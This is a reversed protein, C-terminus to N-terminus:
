EVGAFRYEAKKRGGTDAERKVLDGSDVLGALIEHRRRSGRVWQTQKILDNHSIWKDAHQRFYRLVKKYEAETENASLNENISKVLAGSCHTAVDIAWRMVSGSISDGEHGCLALKIAHEALRSYIASHGGTPNKAIRRRCALQFEDILERAEDSYSIVLPDIELHASLNGQPNANSPRERWQIVESILAESPATVTPKLSNIAYDHSEFVLWRPIFGDQVDDGTLAEYFRSPVTTGYVGLCPQDIDRRQNEKNGYQTGVFTTDASSFLKMIVSLIARQYVNARPNTINALAKGIEDWLLLGAGDAEFLSLLLGADSAPEGLILDSIDAARFIASLCKRPHDKGSGSPAVGLVLMNTRLGTESQVRHSMITGTAAIAAGLALLPQPYIASQCIFSMIRGILGPPNLLSPEPAPRLNGGELITVLQEPPTDPIPPQYGHEIAHYFLSNITLGQNNFSNWHTRIDQPRYKESTRSWKDWVDLGRDGLEDKLTMGIQIWLDYDDAPIYQLADMIQDGTHTLRPPPTFQAKPPEPRFMAEITPWVTHPIKPLEVPLTTLLSGRLWVYPEKTEPHISPPLVTQKGHALVDMVRVGRISYGRSKEGSHRYFLTSGKKGKKALPSPPLLKMIASHLDDVDDDLDIAVLNSASGLCLGINADKWGMWALHDQHEPQVACYRSWATITPSKTGPALPIVSYGRERYDSAISAYPSLM